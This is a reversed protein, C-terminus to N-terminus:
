RDISTHKFENIEPHELLLDLIREITATGEGGDAQPRTMVRVFACRDGAIFTPVGFVQHDQVAAVHARRFAHRPGGGAVAAFVDDAEVGAAALVEAVVQESRLDRADEHRAAFLGLHVDFFRDPFRDRVVLGAEVALLDASKDPREWVPTAGEDIHSQTLSFPLFTVEWGAGARLAEILHEHANRAFPCRYDYTVAFPPRTM